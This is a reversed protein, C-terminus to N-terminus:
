KKNVKSNIHSSKYKERMYFELFKKKEFGLEKPIGMFSIILWALQAENFADFFWLFKKIEKM